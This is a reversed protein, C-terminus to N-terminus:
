PSRCTTATASACGSPRSSAVSGSRRRTSRASPTVRWPSSSSTPGTAASPSRPRSSRGSSSTSRSSRTTARSTAGTDNLIRFNDIDLLAIELAGGTPRLREIAAEITEVLAGHDLRGTFPDRRTAELLAVTQRTIRAQASRFVLYLVAAAAIAATVTVLVVDRRAADLDAMIPTADRWVGIVGEVRGDTLLPLYERITTGTGLDGPGAESEAVPAIAVAMEGALAKRWDPTDAARFGPIPVDSALITGDVRRIEARIIGRADIFRRLGDELATRRAATLDTATLESPALLDDVIFGRVVQTDTRVADNLASASIHLSALVVQATATVGVIVLFVGYVIFLLVPRRPRNVARHGPRTLDGTPRRDSPM